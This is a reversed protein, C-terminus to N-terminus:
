KQKLNNIFKENLAIFLKAPIQSIGGRAMEEEITEYRWTPLEPHDHYIKKRTSAM